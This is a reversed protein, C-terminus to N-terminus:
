VQESKKGLVILKMTVIIKAIILVIPKGIYYKEEKYVVQGSNVLRNIRMEVIDKANYREIIEELSLGKKSYYIERLIRIRRATVGLNIFNYYCYGLSSYIVLNVVLISLSDALSIQFDLFYFAEILLVGLVGAAFGLLESKLLGLRSIIRYSVVQIM